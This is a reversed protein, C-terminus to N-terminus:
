PTNALTDNGKMSSTYMKMLGLCQRTDTDNGKISTTYIKMLGLYQRTDFLIDQRRLFCVRWVITPIGMCHIVFTYLVMASLREGAHSATSWCSLRPSNLKGIHRKRQFIHYWIHNNLAFKPIAPRWVEAKYYLLPLFFFCPFM